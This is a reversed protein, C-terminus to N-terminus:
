AASKFVNIYTFNSTFGTNESHLVFNVFDGDANEQTRVARYGNHLKIGRPDLLVAYVTPDANGFDDLVKVTVPMALEESNFTKALTQVQIAPIIGKKVYLTLSPAAGTLCGAISHNEAAFSADEVAEKVSQIFAECTATDVPKALETKLNKTIAKGIFNGLLQKKQNYKYLAESQYLRETIKTIMNSAEMSNIAAREVNDYPVTTKIKKRGLSYSYAPAETTINSPALTNAGTPDYDSPLIFDAFYEEITKGLPLDEGDFEPLKDEVLGDLSVQKGVKDALDYLNETTLKFEPDAQKQADVYSQVFTQLGSITMKAM